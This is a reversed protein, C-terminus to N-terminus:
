QEADRLQEYAKRQKDSLTKPVQIMIRAFLDAHDQGGRRPMGKGKLRLKSGSSTGPPITMTVTGAMTPVDVKGGLAALHPPVKVATTMDGNSALEFRPDKAVNIKLLLGHEKLRLKTGTTAGKPIKIDITQEGRPGQLRLQRSAGHYAEALSVGLEHTQEPPRQAARPEGPNEFRHGGGPGGQGFLDEFSAGGAGGAAGRAHQGFLMEFFDSFGGAGGPGGTTTRFSFGGPGQRFQGGFGEYGPPPEFNDGDKWNAGLRDYKARKDKDALV